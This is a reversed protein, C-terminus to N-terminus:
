YVNSSYKKNEVKLYDKDAGCEDLSAGETGFVNFYDCKL